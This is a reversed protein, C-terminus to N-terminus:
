NKSSINPNMYSIAIECSERLLQNEHNCYKKLLEGSKSIIGLAIATEHRVIEHEQEDQLVRELISIPAQQKESMQGLVFSVEHKFLPSFRDNYKKDFCVCLLKAAEENSMERLTFIVRYRNFLTENKNILIEELIKLNSYHPNTKFNFPPAPDNTDYIFGGKNLGETEGQNTQNMWKLNDISLECTEKIIDHESSLFKTLLDINNQNDINGLAEASEHLVIPNYKKPNSFVERDL